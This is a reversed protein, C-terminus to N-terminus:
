TSCGPTTAARAPRCGPSTAATPTAPGSKRAGSRWPSRRIPSSATSPPSSDGAFFAPKRLTDGRVIKFDEVGHLFLNMRAIGRHDPEEGPRLAQGLPASTAEPRVFTTRAELLMGGTGCAPDYVTEGAKPDLINVMLRVVTRPTYFEGAKKNTLDAFKKILYEYADGLVDSPELCEVPEHPRFPRHPQGPPTLCDIRIAGSSTM